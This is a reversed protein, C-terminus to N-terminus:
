GEPPSPFTVYPGEPLVGPGLYSPAPEGAPGLYKVFRYVARLDHDNMQHLNFWPMPPRSKVSKAVKVWQDETFGEMYLRLNSPYTTGWPGHWGLSDGTLWLNEPVEGDNMIYGPTHCDNCGTVTVM